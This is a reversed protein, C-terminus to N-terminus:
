DRFLYAIALLLVGAAAISIVNLFAIDIVSDLLIELMAIVEEQDLLCGVSVLIMTGLPYEIVIFLYKWILFSLM